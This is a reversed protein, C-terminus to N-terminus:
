AVAAHNSPAGVGLRWGGVATYPLGGLPFNRTVQCTARISTVATTATSLTKRLQCRLRGCGTTTTTRLASENFQTRSRGHPGRASANSAESIQSPSPNSPPPPPANHPTAAQSSDCIVIICLSWSGGSPSPHIKM